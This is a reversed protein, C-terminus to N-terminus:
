ASRTDARSVRSLVPLCCVPLPRSPLQSQPHSVVYKNTFIGVERGVDVVYYTEAGEMDPPPTMPYRGPIAAHSLNAQALEQSVGPCVSPDMRTMALKWRMM